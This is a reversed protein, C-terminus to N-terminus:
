AGIETEKSTLKAHKILLKTLTITRDSLNLKWMVYCLFFCMFLLIVLFRSNLESFNRKNVQNLHLLLYRSDSCFRFLELTSFLRLQVLLNWTLSPLVAWISIGKELAQASEVLVNTQLWWLWRGKPVCAMRQVSWKSLCVM